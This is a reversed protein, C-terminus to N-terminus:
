CVQSVKQFITEPVKERPQSCVIISGMTLEQTVPIIPMVVVSGGLIIIVIIIAM